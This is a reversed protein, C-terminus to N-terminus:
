VYIKLIHTHMHIISLSLSPYICLTSTFSSATANVTATRSLLHETQGVMNGARRYNSPALHSTASLSRNSSIQTTELNCGHFARALTELKKKRQKIWINDCCSLLSGMLRGGHVAPCLLAGQWGPHSKYVTHTVFM